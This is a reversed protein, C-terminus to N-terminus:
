NDNKSKVVTLKPTSRDQLANMLESNRNRLNANEKELAAIEARAKKLKEHVSEISSAWESAEFAKFYDILKEDTLSKIDSKLEKNAKLVESKRPTTDKKFAKKKENLIKELQENRRTIEGIVDPELAPTLHKRGIKALECVATGQIIVDRKKVQDIESRKINRINKICAEERKKIANFFDEQRKTKVWLPFEDNTEENSSIHLSSYFNVVDDYNSM